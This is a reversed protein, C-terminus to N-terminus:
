KFRMNSSPMVIHNKRAAEANAQGQDFAAQIEEQTPTPCRALEEKTLAVLQWKDGYKEQLYAYFQKDTLHSFAKKADERALLFNSFHDGVMKAMNAQLTLVDGHNMDEVEKSALVNSLANKFEQVVKQGEESLFGNGKFWNTM